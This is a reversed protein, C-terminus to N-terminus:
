EAGFRAVFTDFDEVLLPLEEALLAFDRRNQTVVLAGIKIAVTAILGDLLAGGPNTLTKGRECLQSLASAARLFEAREPVILRGAREFPARLRDVFRRERKSRCGAVLEASTTADLFLLWGRRLGPFLDDLVGRRLHEVWITTDFLLNL